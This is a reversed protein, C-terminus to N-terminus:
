GVTGATAMWLGSPALHTPFLPYPLDRVWFVHRGAEALEVKPLFLVKVPGNRGRVHVLEADGHYTSYTCGSFILGLTLTLYVVIKM